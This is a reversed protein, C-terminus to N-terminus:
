CHNLDYVFMATEAGPLHFDTAFTCIQFIICMTKGQARNELNKDDRFQDQKSMNQEWLKCIM